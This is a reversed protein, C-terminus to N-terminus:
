LRQLTRHFLHAVELPDIRQVPWLFFFTVTKVRVLRIEKDKGPLLEIIKGLPWHIIKFNGSGLLVIDTVSIPRFEKCIRRQVLQDLYESRFRDRLDKPAAQRYKIRKNLSNLDAVYLDPLAWERNDQIFM